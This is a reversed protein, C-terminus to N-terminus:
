NWFDKNASIDSYISSPTGADKNDGNTPFNSKNKIWDLISGSKVNMQSINKDSLEKLFQYWLRGIDSPSLEL